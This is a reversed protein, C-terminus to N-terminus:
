HRPDCQANSREIAFNRAYSVGKSQELNFYRINKFKNLVDDYSVSSGDNVVIIELNHFNQESVSQLARELFDPRNKTPIVVSLLHRSSLTITTLVAADRKKM